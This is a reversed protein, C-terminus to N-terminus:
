RVGSRCMAAEAEATAALRLRVENGGTAVSHYATAQRGWGAGPRREDRDLLCRAIGDLARARQLPHRAVAPATLVERYVRLAQDTEGARHLAAALSNRFELLRPRDGGAPLNALAARHMAVAERPRDLGTLVIGLDHLVESEGYRNATRRTVRLAAKLLRYAPGLQGLRARAAGLNSLATGLHAPIDLQRALQLHRRSWVLAVEFREMHLNIDAIAAACHCLLNMDQMRRALELAEMASALATDFRGLHLYPQCLNLLTRVVGNRDGARRYAAVAPELHGIATRYQGLHHYGSALFGRMIAIAREDGLRQAAAFGLQHTRLLDDTYCRQFLFRWLARALQWAYGDQREAAALEVAATLNPRESELWQLADAPAIRVLDPRKPVGRTRVALTAPSELPATAALTVYLYHDLLGVVAADREAAPLTAAQEAAYARVLDHFRYRGVSPEELLHRDVLDDLLDRADGLPLDAVAAAAPADFREGPHLALLKFMRQAAAPLNDYSLRFAGAVSRREAALEALVGREPRLREALDAVRWGPRRALRAGALRIALPLHGCRRVVAVAAEPEEYVRDGVVGALLDCGEDLTLLRLSEPRVGDLGLLRRRSTILVLCHPAAPLLPTVQDTSAANDLVLVTRRTALEQRWLASRDDLGPPIAEGPVGLQRLLTTLAAGPEVPGQDSHGHLDVFLQADPYRDAVLNAVHVALTTKGSGAMGDIVHVTGGGNADHIAALLRRVVDARGTFGSVTRPLCRVPRATAGVGLTEAPGAGSALTRTPRGGAPPSATSGVAAPMSALPNGSIRDALLQRHLERLYPGPEVGLEANLVRRAERYSALAEAVRGAQHLARMLQGRLRERLPHEAVLDTLEAILERALGLRLEVEACEEIVLLRREDLQAAGRRVAPSAIGALAPGRWLRLAARYRQRGLSWDKAEVAARAEAVLRDFVQSDLEDPRPECRYGTPETRILEDARAAGSIARRLRSVCTHLQGRATAPPRGNWVADILDAIPVVHGAHLLLMALVTRDRGATITAVDGGVWLPGLIGFRM